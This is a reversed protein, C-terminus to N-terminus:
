RREEEVARKLGSVAMGMGGIGARGRRDVGVVVVGVGLM